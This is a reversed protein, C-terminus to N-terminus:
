EINWRLPSSVANLTFATIGRVRIGSTGTISAELDEAKRVKGAKKGSWERERERYQYL